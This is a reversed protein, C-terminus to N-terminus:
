IYKTALMRGLVHDRRRRAANPNLIPSYSGPRNSIGAIMAAEPLTLEKAHKGFYLRSAQEVGYAGHGFYVQNAYLELIQDKTFDKEIQISLLAENIKRTWSKQPTLFILKSLQQTLTSAGEVKKGAMLDKLGARIIAKPSIGGHKYFDADETAIIANVLDAAMERKPVIIRKQISYEAFPVGNRDFVRTIIAPTYDELSKVAPVRVAHAFVFGAPVGLALAVVLM